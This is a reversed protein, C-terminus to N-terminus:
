GHRGTRDQYGAVRGFLAAWRDLWLFFMIALSSVRLTPALERATEAARRHGPCLLGRLMGWTFVPSGHAVQGRQIRRTRRLYDMLSIDCQHRVVAREAYPVPRHQPNARESFEGDGGSPGESFLGFRDFAERTVLMNGGSLRGTRELALRRVEASRTQALLGSALSSRCVVNEIRGGVLHFHHEVSTCVLEEVWHDVPVTDADLFLLFDGKASVIARNRAKYASAEPEILLQVPYSTIIDRSGDVSGNDVVLVEMRDAPWTQRMLADLVQRIWREENRCPIIVSVFPNDM